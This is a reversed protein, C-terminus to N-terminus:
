SGRGLVLVRRLFSRLRLSFPAGSGRIFLSVDQYTSSIKLFCLTATEKKTVIQRDSTTAPGGDRLITKSLVTPPRLWCINM